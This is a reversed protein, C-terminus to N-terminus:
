QAVVGVGAQGRAGTGHRDGLGRAELVVEALVELPRRALRAQEVLQRKLGKENEVM